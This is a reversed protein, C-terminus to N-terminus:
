SAAGSTLTQAYLIAYCLMTNTYRRARARGPPVLRAVVTLMGSRRRCLESPFNVLDRSISGTRLDKQLCPLQM